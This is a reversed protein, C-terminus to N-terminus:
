EDGNTWREAFKYFEEDETYSSMLRDKQQYQYDDIIQELNSEIKVMMDNGNMLVGKSKANSGLISAGRSPYHIPVNRAGVSTKNAM